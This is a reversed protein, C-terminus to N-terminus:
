VNILAQNEHINGIISIECGVSSYFHNIDITYGDGNKWTACFGGEIFEIMYFQPNHNDAKVIDGEYIEIGNKDKLGTFQELVMENLTDSKCAGWQCGGFVGFGTAHFRNYKTDWARFKIERSM